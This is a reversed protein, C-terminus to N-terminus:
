RCRRRCCHLRRRGRRHGTSTGCSGWPATRKVRAFNHAMLGDGMQFVAAILFPQGHLDLRVQEDADAPRQRRQRGHVQLQGDVICLFDFAMANGIIGQATMDFAELGHRRFFPAVYRAQLGLAAVDDDGAQENGLGKELAIVDRGDGDAFPIEHFADKEAMGEM